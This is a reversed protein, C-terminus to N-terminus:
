LKGDLKIPEGCKCVILACCEWNETSKREKPKKFRCRFMIIIASVSALLYLNSESFQWVALLLRSRYPFFNVSPFNGQHFTEQLLKIGVAAAVKMMM